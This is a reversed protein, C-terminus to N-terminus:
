PKVLHTLPERGIDGTQAVLLVDANNSGKNVILPAAVSDCIAEIKQVVITHDLDDLHELDATFKDYELWSNDNAKIAQTYFKLLLSDVQDLKM